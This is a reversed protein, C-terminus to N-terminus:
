VGRSIRKNAIRYILIGFVVWAFIYSAGPIGSLWSNKPFMDPTFFRNFLVVFLITPIFSIFVAIIELRDEDNLFNFLKYQSTKTWDIVVGEVFIRTEELTVEGQYKALM